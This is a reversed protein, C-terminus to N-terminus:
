TLFLIWRKRTVHLFLYVFYGMYAHTFIATDPGKVNQSGLFNRRFTPFEVGIEFLFIAFYPSKRGFHCPDVAVLYTYGNSNSLYQFKSVGVRWHGPLSTKISDHRTEEVCSVDAGIM